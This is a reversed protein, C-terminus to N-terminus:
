KRPLSVGVHLVRDDIEHTKGPRSGRAMPRAGAALILVGDDRRRASCSRASTTHPRSRQGSHWCCRWTATRGCSSSRHRERPTTGSSGSWRTWRRRAPEPTRPRRPPARPQPPPPVRRPGQRATRDGRVGAMPTGSRQGTWSPAARATSTRYSSASRGGTSPRYGRCSTLGLGACTTTSPTPAPPRDPPCSPSGELGSLRSSPSIPTPEIWCTLCHPSNWLRGVSGRSPGEVRWSV